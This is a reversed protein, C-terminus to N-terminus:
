RKQHPIDGKETEVLESWSSSTAMKMLDVLCLLIRYKQISINSMEKGKQLISLLRVCKQAQIETVAPVLLHPLSLHGMLDQTAEGTSLCQWAWDLVVLGQLTEAKLM